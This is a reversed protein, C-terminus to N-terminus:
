TSAPPTVLREIGALTAEAFLALLAVPVAGVFLLSYDLLTLGSTIFRGLGGAGVFAALTASAVVEVAATRVGAVVIPLAIPLQVRRFVQYETMGLGRANEIVAEGVARLGADTNIILPPGALLILAILTLVFSRDWFPLLDGIDRRYPFLVFLVAISPVVRAASVVGILAPGVRRSRSAMIGLPFFIVVAVLLSYLSLRIHVSLAERFRDPNDQIYRLSDTVLDM